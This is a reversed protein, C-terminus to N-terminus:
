DQPLLAPAVLGGFKNEPLKGEPDPNKVVLERNVFSYICEDGLERGYGSMKIGGFPIEPLTSLFTNVFMMGTEIKAAVEAGHEADGSYVIGGLGLHSDNALEIAAAEDKVKYVQAVPGFMEQYYAPNDKTIDTLITPQFFQGDLDVPENGYYVKAGAAIAEDVQKQLKNKNKETCMPALTTTPDMPDGMKVNAFQEALNKIFRDYNKETVIFRKSSTCVQGCNYLRAAASVKEVEDMNADDLVIFADNGGLEMTSKKLNKGAEAAVAKGGRESGTLCVGQIRPDAIVDAVQDYSLFLNKFSGVPAGAKEVAAEFALASGPTNAAHKLVMPNGAAFYPAFVRMIQYYPFNWPEVAMLVGYPRNLIQAQGSLTQVSEPALLREANAAYYEAIDACIAVEGLAENYLKGMDEVLPKALQEADKIFIQSLKHLIKARPAVPDDRMSKYLNYANALTREIEDPTSNDYQKVIENTYPNVTAYAM